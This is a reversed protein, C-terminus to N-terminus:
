FTVDDGLRQVMNLARIRCPMDLAVIIRDKTMTGSHGSGGHLFPDSWLWDPSVSPLWGELKRRVGDHKM